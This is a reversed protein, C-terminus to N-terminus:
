IRLTRAQRTDPRLCARKGPRSFAVPRAESLAGTRANGSAVPCARRRWSKASSTKAAMPSIDEHCDGAYAGLRSKIGFVIPVLIWRTFFLVHIYFDCHIRHPPRSAAFEQRDICVPM